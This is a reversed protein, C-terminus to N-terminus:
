LMTSLSQLSTMFLALLFGSTHAKIFALAPTEFVKSSHECLSQTKSDNNEYHCPCSCCQTLQTAKGLVNHQTEERPVQGQKRIGSHVSGHHLAKWWLRWGLLIRRRLVSFGQRKIVRTVQLPQLGYPLEKM